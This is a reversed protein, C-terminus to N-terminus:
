PAGPIQRFKNAERIFDVSPYQNKDHPLHIRTDLHPAILDIGDALADVQLEGYKEENLRM